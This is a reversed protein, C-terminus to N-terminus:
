ESVLKFSKLTCGYNSLPIFATVFCIVMEHTLTKNSSYIFNSPKIFLLETFLTKVKNNM